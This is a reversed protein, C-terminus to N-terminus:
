KKPSGQDPQSPRDLRETAKDLDALFEDETHESDQKKQVEPSPPHPRKESM